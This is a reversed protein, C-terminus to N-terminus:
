RAFGKSESAADSSGSRPDAEWSRMRRRGLVALGVVGPGLLLLGPEPVFNLTLRTFLAQKDSDGYDIPGIQLSVLRDGGAVPKVTAVGVRNVDVPDTTGYEVALTAEVSM